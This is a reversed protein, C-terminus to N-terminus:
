SEIQEEIITMKGRTMMVILGLIIAGAVWIFALFGLGLTAGINTGTRAAESTAKVHMDSIQLLYAGTWLVMVVNFVIFVIKVIRGMVSRKREERRIIKVM